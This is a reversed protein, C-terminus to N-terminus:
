LGGKRRHSRDARAATLYAKQHLLLRHGGNGAGGASGPVPRVGQGRRRHHRRVRGHGAPRDGPIGAPRHATYAISRRTKDELSRPDHSDGGRPDPVGHTDQEAARGANGQEAVSGRESTGSRLLADGAHGPLNRTMTRMSDRASGTRPVFLAAAAVGIALISVLEELM